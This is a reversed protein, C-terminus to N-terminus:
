DQENSEEASDCSSDHDNSDHGAGQPDHVTDNDTKTDHHQHFASNHTGMSKVLAVTTDMQKAILGHANGNHKGNDKGNAKTNTSPDSSDSDHSGHSKSESCPNSTSGGSGSNTNTNTNSNTNGANSGGNNNGSTTGPNPSTSQPSTSHWLYLPVGVAAIGALILAIAGLKRRSPINMKRDEIEREQTHPAQKPSPINYLSNFLHQGVM